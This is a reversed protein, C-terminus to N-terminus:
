SNIEQTGRETHIIRPNRCQMDTVPKGDVFSEASYFVPCQHGFVSCSMKDKKRLLPFDEVLPGYPCYDLIHCPKELFMTHTRSGAREDKKKM